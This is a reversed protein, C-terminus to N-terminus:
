IHSVIVQRKNMCLIIGLICLVGGFVGLLYFLVDNKGSITACGRISALKMFNQVLGLQLTSENSTINVRYSDGQCGSLEYFDACGRIFTTNLSWAENELTIPVQVCDDGPLDLVLGKDDTAFYIFGHFYQRILFIHSTTTIEGDRFKRSEKDLKTKPVLFTKNDDMKQVFEQIDQSSFPEILQSQSLGFQSCFSFDPLLVKNKQNKHM